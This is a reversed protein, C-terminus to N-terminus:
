AILMADGFSFFRYRERIAEAYARLVNERGAFASVLMLLTSEPLHFNTILGDVVKFDYGPTIFIDTSGNTVGSELTRCATTGVAIIRRNESKALKIANSTEQPVYCYEAHMHHKAINEVKVPRFTGLGIHLTVYRLEVGLVRLKGLLEETFHLGATPAAASGNEKAYITQYRSKDSLNAKIYPPLPVSGIRELLELFIGEYCFKALRNGNPLVDIIEASIEGFTLTSGTRLKRGPRVICEWIDNGKDQLLLLEKNGCTLRAPLVRSDNFVLVDGSRLLMPLEYFQRHEIKGSARDLCM